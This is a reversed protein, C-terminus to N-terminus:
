GKDWAVPMTQLTQMACRDEVYALGGEEAIRRAEPSRIGLQLWLTKAGTRVADRAVQPTKEAPLFVDVLDVPEPIESVSAYAREGLIREANPNVLIVRYGSLKLYTGVENSPKNPDSSLGVVAITRAGLLLKEADSGIM